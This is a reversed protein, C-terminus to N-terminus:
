QTAVREEASTSEPTKRGVSSMAPWTGLLWCTESDWGENVPCSGRHDQVRRETNRCGGKQLSYSTRTVEAVREGGTRRHREQGFRRRRRKLSHGDELM